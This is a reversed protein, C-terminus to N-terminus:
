DEGIPRARPPRGPAGTTWKKPLAVLLGPHERRRDDVLSLEGGAARLLDRAIVVPTAATDGVLRNQDGERNEGPIDSAWGNSFLLLIEVREDSGGLRARIAGEGKRAVSEATLLHLAAALHDPSCVARHLGREPIEAEIGPGDTGDGPTSWHRTWLTLERQADTVAKSSGERGRSLSRLLPALNGLDRGRLRPETLFLNALQGAAAAAIWRRGAGAAPLDGKELAEAIRALRKREGPKRGAAIARILAADESPLPSPGASRSKPDSRRASLRTSELRRVVELALSRLAEFADNQILGERNTQDRLEPNSDRGIEIFGIVQSNSLHESPNNVRRQDLGLWDDQPEGYPLVRFGDRYVSIGKWERLWGRVELKPGVAAVSDSDLDYAHLRMGLPGCSMDGNWRTTTVAGSRDRTTLRGDDDLRAHCYWPSKGLFEARLEGSYEPFEDSEIRVAFPDGRRFPSILRTLRVSLRRFMRETWATRAGSIRLITGGSPIERPERTEYASTVESLLKESDDYDSFRIRATVEVRSGAKRTVIELDDGLKDAAFRGVGKEGLFRRGKGSATKGGGKTTAAPHMWGGLLEDLDMGEGDDLIEIRGGPGSVGAFRILVRSADADHANKVLEGLAVVEDSILEEGIIKILRARPQFIATGSVKRGKERTM